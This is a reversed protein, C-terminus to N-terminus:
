RRAREVWDGLWVSSLAPTTDGGTSRLLVRDRGRRGRPAHSTARATALYAAGDVGDDILKLAVTGPAGAVVVAGPLRRTHLDKLPSETAQSGSREERRQEAEGEYCSHIALAGLM